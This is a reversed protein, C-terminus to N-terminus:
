SNPFGHKKGKLSVIAIRVVATHSLNAQPYTFKKDTLRAVILDLAHIKAAEEQILAATGFGIVTRHRAEFDCALESEIVGHDVSIEFCVQPNRELIAMKTGGKASHFYLATGDYAYFLPVVFPLNNDALALRMVKGEGIIADIEARGTIERDKRRM